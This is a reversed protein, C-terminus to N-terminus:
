VKGYRPGPDNTQNSMIFFILSEESGFAGPPAHPDVGHVLATDFWKTAAM